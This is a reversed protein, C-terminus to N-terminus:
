QPKARAIEKGTEEIVHLDRVGCHDACPTPGIEGALEAPTLAALRRLENVAADATDFERIWEAHFDDELVYRPV